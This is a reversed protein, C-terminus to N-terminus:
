KLCAAATQMFTADEGGHVADGYVANHAIAAMEAAIDRRQHSQCPAISAGDNM